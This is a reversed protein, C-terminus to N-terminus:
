VTNVYTDFKMGGMECFFVIIPVEVNQMWFAPVM